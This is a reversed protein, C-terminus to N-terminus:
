EAGNLFAKLDVKVGPSMTTALACSKMYTGKLTQPKLKSIANLVEAANQYIQEPTFSVKGIGTHVIGTKDVKFDIKGRMMKVLKATIALGLGTGEINKNQHADFREFDKFLKIKDEDRIGIGSDKVSFKLLLEGMQRKVGTDEDLGLEMDVSLVIGGVKTYKVANTLFNVVIQRIRTSDGFLENPINENVNVRLDLHKKEARFKVMNVLTRILEDLQYVEEILEM